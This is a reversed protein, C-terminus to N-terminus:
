DVYVTWRKLCTPCTHNVWYSDDMECYNGTNAGHESTKKLHKCKAQHKNLEEYLEKIERTLREAKLEKM